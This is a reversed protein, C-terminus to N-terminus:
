PVIIRVTSTFTGGTYSGDVRLTNAGPAVAPFTVVATASGGAPVNGLSQPLPAGARAGLLARTLAVSNATSSGTNTVTIAAQVDPGLRSLVTKTILRVPACNQACVRELSELRLTDIWWGIRAVSNDSAM